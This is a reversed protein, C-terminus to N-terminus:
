RGFYGKSAPIARGETASLFGGTGIKLAGETIARGFNKAEEVDVAPFEKGFVEKWIGKAEDEKGAIYKSHADNLKEKAKGIKKVATEYDSDSKFSSKVLYTEAQNYWTRIGEELNKFDNLNFINIAVEEIHFSPIYKDHDRNWNKVAKIAKKVQYARKRNVEDLDATLKEPDTLIWSQLNSSPMMYGGGIAPFTPLVDFDKDSLRVTVCPRDQSVKGEYESVDNLSNKIRTLVSQPSPLEGNEDSWKNKNLVAFLDIDDLPRINTDREYSGNTFTSDVHLNDAEKLHGELNSLSTKISEEQRDTVSINDIYGDISQLLTSM